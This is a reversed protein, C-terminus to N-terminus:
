RGGSCWKTWIVPDVAEVHRPFVTTVVPTNRIIGSFECTIQVVIGTCTGVHVALPDMEIAVLFEFEPIVVVLELSQICLEDCIGDVVKLNGLAFVNLNDYSQEAKLACVICWALVHDSVTRSRLSVDVITQSWQKVPDLRLVKLVLDVGNFHEVLWLPHYVRSATGSLSLNGEVQDM